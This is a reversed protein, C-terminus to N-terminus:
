SHESEEAKMRSRTGAGGDRPSHLPRGEERVGDELWEAEM